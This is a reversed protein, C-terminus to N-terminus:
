AGTVSYTRLWELDLRREIASFDIVPFYGHARAAEMRRSQALAAPTGPLHQLEPTSASLRGTPSTQPLSATMTM